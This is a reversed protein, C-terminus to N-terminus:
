PLVGVGWVITGKQSSAKKGGRKGLKEVVARSKLIVKGAGM